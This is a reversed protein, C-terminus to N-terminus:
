ASLAETWVIIRGPMRRKEAAPGVFFGPTDHLFILPTNFSDCIAIEHLAM